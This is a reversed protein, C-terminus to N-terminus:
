PYETPDFAKNDVGEEEDKEMIPCSMLPNSESLKKKMIRLELAESTPQPTGNAGFLLELSSDTSLGNLEHAALGHTECEVDFKVSRAGTLGEASRRHQMKSLEASLQSMDKVTDDQENSDEEDSSAVQDHVAAMIMQNELLVTDVSVDARVRRTLEADGNIPPIPRNIMPSSPHPISANGSINSGMTEPKTPAAQLLPESRLDPSPTQRSDPVGVDADRMALVTSKFLQWDGFTMELVPKLDALDCTSLVVGNINHLLISTKYKDLNLTSMSPIKHLLDCVDAVTCNSLPKLDKPLKQRREQIALVPQHPLVHPSFNNYAVPQSQPPVGIRPQLYTNVPTGSLRMSEPLQLEADRSKDLISLQQTLSAVDSAYGLEDVMRKLDNEKILKRLFPDLNITAPMFKKIDDVSLRPVHSKLFTTFKRENRDIDLLPEVERLLPIREKVTDYISLLSLNDDLKGEMEEYYLLIWSTRYPWQETINIWASLRYWNFDIDNARLLRGAMAIINMLRRMSRPNIDVFYDNKMLGKPMDAALHHLPELGISETVISRRRQPELSVTSSVVSAPKDIGKYKSQSPANQWKRLQASESPTYMRPLGHNQLYFPLHVINRLYGYGNLSQDRLAQLQNAEIGKIIVHPDLALLIIFPSNEPIILNIADLVQLVKGQECSDLGDIILVLRTQLSEHRDMSTVLTSLQQVEEKLVNLFNDSKSVDLSQSAKMTRKKPSNAYAAIARGCTPVSLLLALAVICILVLMVINIEQPNNSFPPPYAWLLAIATILCVLIFIVIVIYPICCLKKFKKRKEKDSGFVKYLRTVMVGYRKELADFLSGIMSALSQEGGLSTLKTSNAFVFSISHCLTDDSTEYPRNYFLMYLLLRLKQLKKAFSHSIYVVWDWGKKQELCYLAAQLVYILFLISLGVGLGVKWGYFGTLLLGIILSISFNLFFILSSFQFYIQPSQKMYAEMDEKLKNLMFSKGSGWKAFLGVTMPTNLTPSSLIDALSSSYLSYGLQSEVAEQSNLSRAGFIHSLLSRKHGSDISYPTEGCKNSVYLYRSNSPNKLLLELMRRNRARMAIHLSTDGKSDAASVKAGREVLLYAVECSRNRVARLLPTNGEKDSIEKNPDTTLLIKVLSANGKDVALYLVTKGDQGKADIDPNKRLLMRIIDAHGGKTAHHLVTDGNKDATNLYAGQNLLEILIDDYGAKAALALATMGAKDTANLNPHSNLILKAVQVHGGQLAVLLPTWSYMGVADTSAGQNLLLKVTQLFGKRAAWILPTSGYKDTADVKAGAELLLSVCEAHGRGAAWHLCTMSHLAKINVNARRKILEKTCSTRGKYCSWMLATWGGADRKELDADAAILEAVIEAHGDRSAYMLSTWYDNDVANVM